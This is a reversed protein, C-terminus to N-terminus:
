NILEQRALEYKNMAEEETDFYGLHFLKRCVGIRSIWKKNGKHWSVGRYKSSGVRRMNCMNERHNSVRLNTKQNNLGNHDIHDIEMGQPYCLILRHMTVKTKNSGSSAAYWLGSIFNAHWKWTMLWAYDEDDVLALQGKTLPIKKM